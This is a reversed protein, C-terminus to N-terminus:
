GDLPVLKGQVVFRANDYEYTCTSLTVVRDDITVETDSDFISQSKMKELWAGYEEASSFSLTYTDSDYNCIYATFVEIKYNQKPTNLYLVPHTAYYGDESYSHLSNFMSGDKMNHGYIISNAGSFEPGCSCDLFLTGSANYSGDLLHHLYQNNDEGQAVPYNIVTDKSYLWGAVDSNSSLLKEFDVTIPSVEKDEDETPAADSVPSDTVAPTETSVFEESMKDYSRQAVKYANLTSFLKYGSFCFVGLCVVCLVILLIKVPKKM